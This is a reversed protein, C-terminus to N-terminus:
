ILFFIVHICRLMKAFSLSSRSFLNAGSWQPPCLRSTAAALPILLKTRRIGAAASPERVPAPRIEVEAEMQPPPAGELGEAAAPRIM